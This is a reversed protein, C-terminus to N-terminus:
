DPNFVCKGYHADFFAKPMSRQCKYSQTSIYSFLEGLREGPLLIVGEIIETKPNTLAILYRVDFTTLNSSEFITNEKEPSFKGFDVTPSDQVKVELLQNTIDPFAGYLLDKKQM